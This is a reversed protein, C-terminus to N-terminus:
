KSLKEETIKKIEGWEFGKRLLYETVKEKQKSISLKNIKTTALKKEILNEIVKSSEEEDFSNKLAERQTGKDIGYKNLKAELEKKSTNKKRKNSEILHTAFELDNIYKKIELKGIIQDTNEIEKSELYRKIEQKSRIRRSLYELVKRMGFEINDSEKIKAIEEQTLEKDEFINFKLLTSEEVAFAFERDIYVSIRRKNKTRVLRTVKM